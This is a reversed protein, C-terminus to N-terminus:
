GCASGDTKWGSFAGARGATWGGYIHVAHHRWTCMQGNYRWHETLDQVEVTTVLLQDAQIRLVYEKSSLTGSGDQVRITVKYEGHSCPVGSVAGTKEDIVLGEPLGEATFGLPGDGGVTEIAAAYDDGVIGDPLQETQIELPPKKEFRVYIQHDRSIKEFTYGAADANVEVNLGDVRLQAIEYGADAEFVFEQSSGADVEVQGEPSIKGNGEAAAEIVYKQSSDFTLEESALTVGDYSASASIKLEGDARRTLVGEQDVEIGGEQSCQYEALPTLNVTQGDSLHGLVYVKTQENYLIGTDEAILEVGELKPASEADYAYFKLEDIQGAIGPRAGDNRAGLLVNGAGCPVPSEITASASRRGNMYLIVNGDEASDSSDFVLKVHTWKGTTLVQDSYIAQYSAAGSQSVYCITVRIKGGDFVDILIGKRTGNKTHADFIVNEKVVRDPNVWFDVALNDMNSTITRLKVADGNEGGLRLATGGFLGQDETINNQVTGDWGNGSVDLVKGEEISGNYYAYLEDEENRVTIYVSAHRKMGDQDVGATIVASGVVKATVTGTSDVSLVDPNSSIFEARDTVDTTVDGSQATVKLSISEGLLLQTDDAVISLVAAEDSEAFFPMIKLEDLLGSYGEGLVIDGTGSIGAKVPATVTEEGVKLSVEKGSVKLSIKAFSDMPLVTESMLETGGAEALVRGENIEICFAGTKKALVGSSEEPQVYFEVAFNDTFSLSNSNPIRITGAKEFKAAKGYVGADSSAINGEINGHNGNGSFDEVTDSLNQFHYLAITGEEVPPPLEGEPEEDIMGTIKLNDILGDFNSKGSQDAGIRIATPVERLSAKLTGTIGLEGNIYVRAEGAEEDFEVAIQTWEGIPVTQKSLMEQWNEEIVSPALLRM